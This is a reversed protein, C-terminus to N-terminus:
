GANKRQALQEKVLRYFIGPHRRVFDGLLGLGGLKSLDLLWTLSERLRENARGDVARWPGHCSAAHDFELALARRLSAQFAGLDNWM